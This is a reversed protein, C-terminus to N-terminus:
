CISEASERLLELTQEWEEVQNYFNACDEWSELADLYSNYAAKLANCTDDNQDLTWAETAANLNNIEVIFDQSFNSTCGTPPTDPDMNGDDNDDGCSIAFAMLTAFFFLLTFKKM